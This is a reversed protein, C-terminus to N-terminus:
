VTVQQNLFQPEGEWVLHNGRRKAGNKMDSYTKGTVPITTVKRGGYQNVVTIKAFMKNAPYLVSDKHVKPCYMVNYRLQYYAYMGCQAHTEYLPILTLIFLWLLSKM